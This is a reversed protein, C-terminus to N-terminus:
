AALAAPVWLRQPLDSGDRDAGAPLWCLTRFCFARGSPWPHAVSRGRHVVDTPRYVARRCAGSGEVINAPGEACAGPHVRRCLVPVPRLQQGLRRSRGLRSAQRSLSGIGAVAASLFHFDGLHCAPRGAECADPYSLYFQEEVAISWMLDLALNGWGFFACYWNGGLLAMAIIRHPPVAFVPFIHEMIVYLVICAYYLPWIRLIRRLYFSQLHISGTKDREKWLLETILYASLVFFLCVGFAGAEQVARIWRNDIIFARTFGIHHFFVASFALFRLVDLEKRYFSRSKSGQTDAATGASVAMESNAMGYGKSPALTFQLSAM